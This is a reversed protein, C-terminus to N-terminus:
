LDITPPALRSVESIRIRVHGITKFDPLMIEADPFDPSPLEIISSSATHVTVDPLEISGEHFSISVPAGDEKLAGYTIPQIIAAIGTAADIYELSITDALM